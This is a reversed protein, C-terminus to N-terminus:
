ALHCLFSMRCSHQCGGAANDPYTVRVLNNNADYSYAYSAGVPDTMSSLHGTADYAFSVTHGFPGTITILRGNADSAYSTTKGSPDTQAVLRGAIDYREVEGTNMTLTYGSADQTLALKTDADGKWAGSADKTFREGRGTGQRVLLSTTSSIELRAHFSSTWGFGLGVDQTFRSNYSRTFGSFHLGEGRDVWNVRCAALSRSSRM